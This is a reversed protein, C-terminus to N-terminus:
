PLDYISDFTRDADDKQPPAPPATAKTIAAAVLDRLIAAEDETAHPDEDWAAFARCAALLDPAAAFLQAHAKSHEGQTIAVEGKWGSARDDFQVLWLTGKDTEAVM